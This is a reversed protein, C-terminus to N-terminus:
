IKLQFKILDLFLIVGDSKKIGYTKDDTCEKCCMDLSMDRRM